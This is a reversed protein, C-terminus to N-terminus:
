INNLNVLWSPYKGCGHMWSHKQQKRWTPSSEAARWVQEFEAVEITIGAKWWKEWEAADYRKDILLGFRDIWHTRDYRLIYGNAYSDVHRLGFEDDGIEMYRTFTGWSHQPKSDLPGRGSAKLYLMTKEEAQTTAPRDPRSEM